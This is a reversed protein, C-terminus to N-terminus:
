CGVLVGHFCMLLAFNVLTFVLLLLDGIALCSKVLLLVVSCYPPRFM